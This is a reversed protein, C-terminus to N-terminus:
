RLLRTSGLWRRSTPTRRCAVVTTTGLTTSSRCGVFTDNPAHHVSPTASINFIPASSDWAPWTDLGAANPDGNKAFNTWYAMTANRVSAQAASPNSKTGFVYPIEDGHLVLGFSSPESFQYVYARSGSSMSTTLWQASCAYSFDTECAQASYFYASLWSPVVDKPVPFTESLLTVREIGFRKAFYADLSTHSMSAM